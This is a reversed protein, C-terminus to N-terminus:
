RYFLFLKYGAPMLNTTDLRLKINSERGGGLGLKEDEGAKLYEAPTFVRRALTKDQTDTLSLELNPYSQAYRARNLLVATLSVINPYQPTAELDSSEISVLDIKKPLPIEGFFKILLPKVGPLQAGIEIRYFYVGQVLLLAMLLIAVIVWPWQRMARNQSTSTGLGVPEAEHFLLQQALTETHVSAAEVVPSDSVTQSSIDADTQIINEPETIVIPLTMQPSAEDGRLHETANFVTSCRGCRVMGHHAALQEDSVKFRTACEPCQTVATESM